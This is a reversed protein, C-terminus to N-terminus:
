SSLIIPQAFQVVHDSVNMNDRTRLTRFADWNNVQEDTLHM